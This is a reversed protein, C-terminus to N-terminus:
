LTEDKINNRTAELQMTVSNSDAGEQITGNRPSMKFIANEARMAEGAKKDFVKVTVREETRFASEMLNVVDTSVEYATYSLPVGSSLGTTVVLGNTRGQPSAQLSKVLPDNRDLVTVNEFEYDTGGMTISLVINALTSNKM